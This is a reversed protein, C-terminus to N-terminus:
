KCQEIRTTMVPECYDLICRFVGIPLKSVRTAGKQRLKILALTYNYNIDVPRNDPIFYQPYLKSTVMDFTSDVM